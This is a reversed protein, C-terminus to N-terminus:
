GHVFVAPQEAARARHAPCRPDQGPPGGAVAPRRAALRCRQHAPPIVGAGAGEQGIGALQPQPHDGELALVGAIGRGGPLPPPHQFAAPLDPQGVEVAHQPQFRQGGQTEPLQLRQKVGEAQRPRRPGGVQDGHRPHDGLDGLAEPVQGGAPPFVRRHGGDERLRGIMRAEGAEGGPDPGPEVARDGRGRRLDRVRRGEEREPVLEELTVAVHGPRGGLQRRRGPGLVGLRHQGQQGPEEVVAAEAGDGVLDVGAPALLGELRGDGAVEGAARHVAPADRLRSPQGLDGDAHGRLHAIVHQDQARPPAPRHQPGAAGQGCPAQQLFRGGHPPQGRVFQLSRQRGGPSPPRRAAPRAAAGVIRGGGGRSGVPGFM